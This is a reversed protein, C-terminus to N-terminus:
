RISLNVLVVGRNHIKPDESKVTAIIEHEIPITKFESKYLTSTKLYYKWYKVGNVRASSILVPREQVISSSIQIGSSVSEVIRATYSEAFVQYFTPDFFYASSKVVEKYDTSKWNFIENIGEMLWTKIADQNLIPEDQTAIRKLEPTGEIKVTVFVDPSLKDMNFSMVVFCIPIVIMLMTIITISKNLFKGSKHIDM